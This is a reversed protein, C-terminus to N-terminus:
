DNSEREVERKRAGLTVRLSLVAESEPMFAVPVIRGGDDEPGPSM